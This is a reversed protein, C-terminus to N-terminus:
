PKLGKSILRERLALRYVADKTAAPVLAEWNGDGKVISERIHRGEIKTAPAREFLVEVRYGAQMLKERKKENWPECLTTFCPIERAIFDALQEPRGDLPFPTCTFTNQAVGADAMARSMIQVREFYTLPNAHFEQRHVADPSEPMDHVDPRVIGIWLFRCRKKAELLYELHQKHPPQFRGCVFAQDLRASGTV